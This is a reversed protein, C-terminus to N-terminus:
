KREVVYLRARIFGKDDEYTRLVYDLNDTNVIYSMLLFVCESFNTHAGFNEKARIVFSEDLQDDEFVAVINVHKPADEKPEVRNLRCYHGFENIIEVAEDLTKPFERKILRVLLPFQKKLGLKFIAGILAPDGLVDILGSVFMNVHAFIASALRRDCDEYSPAHPPTRDSM